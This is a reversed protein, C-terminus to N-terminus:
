PENSKQTKKLGNERNTHPEPRAMTSDYGTTAKSSRWIVSARKAPARGGGRRHDFSACLLFFYENFQIDGCESKKAQCPKGEPKSAGREPPIHNPLPLPQPM